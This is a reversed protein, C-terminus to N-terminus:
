IPSCAPSPFEPFLKLAVLLKSRLRSILIPRRRITLTWHRNVFRRGSLGLTRRNETVALVRLHTLKPNRTVPEIDNPGPRNAGFGGFHGRGM